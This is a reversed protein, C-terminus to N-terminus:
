DAQLAGDVIRVTRDGYDLVREDHTVIIAAVGRGKIERELLDMVQKGLESDLSSTPEDVLVLSPDNMLARGIAVRQQQGGSLQSPLSDGRQGLGLEDLLEDARDKAESDIRAGGFQRVVLLNERATLFPVLNVSQFVFGVQDRRFNALDKDNLDTIETGGVRVSGSTPRLLAGAVTLLTTKGSGSPGVLLMMEDEAVTLTVDDLAVVQAEDAGYVKRAKDLELAPM